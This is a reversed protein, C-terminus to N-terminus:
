TKSQVRYDPAVSSATRELFRRAAPVTPIFSLSCSHPRVGRAAQPHHRGFTVEEWLCNQKNPGVQGFSGYISYCGYRAVASSSNIRNMSYCGRSQERHLQPRDLYSYRASARSAHPVASNYLDEAQGRKESCRMGKRCYEHMHHGSGRSETM